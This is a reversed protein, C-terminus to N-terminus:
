RPDSLGEVGGVDEVIGRESVCGTLCLVVGAFKCAAHASKTFMMPLSFTDM